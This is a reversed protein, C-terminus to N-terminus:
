LAAGCASVPKGAIRTGQVGLTGANSKLVTAEFIKSGDPVAGILAPPQDSGIATVVTAASPSALPAPESTSSNPAPPPRVQAARLPLAAIPPRSRPRGGGWSM